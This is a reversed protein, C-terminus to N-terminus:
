RVLTVSGSKKRVEGGAFRMEAYYVFVGPPLARGKHTGDWGSVHDPPLEVGNYVMEGWNDYVRLLAISEMEAGAFVTFLSNDGGSAPAFANPIYYNCDEAHVAEALALTDFCVGHGSVILTLGHIGPGFVKGARPGEASVGDAFLWRWGDAHRSTDTFAVELPACGAGASIAFGAEPKHFVNLEQARSNQCGNWDTVTLRVTKAGGTSFTHRGDYRVSDVTGDGYDWTFALMDPDSGNQFAVPTQACAYPPLGFAVDPQPLTVITHGITDYGCGTSVRLVVRFTDNPSSFRHVLAKENSFTGDGFSWRLSLPVPTSADRFQVPAGPCVEPDSIEFFAEVGAPIVTVTDTWESAGCENQVWLRLNFYATLNDTYFTHTLTDFCDHLDFGNGLSMSCSDPAGASRNTIVVGFPSCGTDASDLGLEARPMVDVRVSASDTKIGCENQVSYFVTYFAAEPGNNQFVVAGPAAWTDAEAPTAGYFQWHYNLGPQQADAPTFTTTLPSCGSSAEASFAAGGPPAVATFARTLSDRCGVLVAIQELTHPGPPPSAFPPQANLPLGDLRWQVENAQMGDTNVEVPVGACVPLGIDFAAKPEILSLAVDKGVTCIGDSFTYSLTAPFVGAYKNLDFTAGSICTPCVACAWSGGAPTANLTVSPTRACIATDNATVALSKVLFTITDRRECSTGAQYVAQVPFTGPEAPDFFTNNGASVIHQGEWQVGPKDAQLLVFGSGACLTKDGAPASIHVAEPLRVWFSDTVEQMGCINTLTGRLVYRGTDLTLPFNTAPNGNLTYNANASLPSPSYSMPACGDAQPLLTLAEGEVAQLTIEAEDTINCANSVRLRVKYTGAQNFDIRAAASDKKSLWVVGSAPSVSWQYTTENQSNQGSLAVVGGGGGTCVTNGPSIVGSLIDLAAEPKPLVTVTRTLADTGCNNSVELKVEFDGSAPFNFSPNLNNSALAGNLYWAYNASNANPCTSNYPKVPSGACPTAPFFAFDAVPKFRVTVPFEIYSFSRKNGACKKEVGLRVRLNMQGGIICTDEPFDYIHALTDPNGNLKQCAGDGWDVYTNAIEAAPTSNNVVKVVQNECFISSVGAGFGGSAQIDGCDNALQWVAPNCQAPLRHALLALLAPLLFLAISPLCLKKM